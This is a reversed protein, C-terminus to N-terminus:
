RGMGPCLDIHKAYVKTRAHACLIQTIPHFLRAFYQPPVLRAAIVRGGHGM